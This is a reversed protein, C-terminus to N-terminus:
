DELFSSCVRHSTKEGDDYASQQTEDALQHALAAAEGALVSQLEAGVHQAPHLQGGVDDGDGAAVALGGGHLHDGGDEAGAAPLHDVVGLAGVLDLAHGGQDQGVAGQRAAHPSVHQQQLAVLAVGTVGKPPEVGGVEDDGVQVPVLEGAVAMGLPDVAGDEGSDMRVGGQHEVGVIRQHGFEAQAVVRLLHLPETQVGGAAVAGGADVVVPGPAGHAPAPHDVVDAVVVVDAM